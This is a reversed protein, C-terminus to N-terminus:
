DEKIESRLALAMGLIAVEALIFILTNIMLEQGGRQQGCAM